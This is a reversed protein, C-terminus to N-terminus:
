LFFSMSYPKLSLGEQYPQLLTFGLLEYPGFLDRDPITWSTFMGMIRLRETRNFIHSTQNDVEYVPFIKLDMELRPGKEWQLFAIELQYLNLKLGSSLYEEFTSQYPPFDSFGPSKLRYKVLLPAACFCSVPSNESYEYGLPCSQNPCGASSNPSNLTTNDDAGESGCFQALTSNDCM